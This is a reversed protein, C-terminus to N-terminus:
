AHGDDRACVEFLTKAKPYVTQAQGNVTGHSLVAAKDTTHHMVLVKAKPEILAETRRDLRIVVLSKPQIPCWAVKARESFAEQLKAVTDRLNLLTVVPLALEEYSVIVAVRMAEAYRGILLRLWSAAFFRSPVVQTAVRM